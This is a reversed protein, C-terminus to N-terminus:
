NPSALYTVRHVAKNEWSLKDSRSLGAQQNYPTYSFNHNKLILQQVYNFSQNYDECTM